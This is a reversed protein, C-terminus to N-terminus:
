FSLIDFTASKDLYKLEDLYLELQTKQADTDVRDFALFEYMFLSFMFM